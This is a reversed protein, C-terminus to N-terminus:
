ECAKNVAQMFRGFAIPKLLCDLATIDPGDIDLFVLDIPETKLYTLADIANVLTRKLELFPV